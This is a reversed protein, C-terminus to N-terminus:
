ANQGSDTACQLTGLGARHSERTEEEEEEEEEGEEEAKGEMDELVNTGERQALRRELYAALFSHIEAESVVEPPAECLVQAPPLSSSFPANVFCARGLTTTHTPCIEIVKADRRRYKVAFVGKHKKSKCYTM